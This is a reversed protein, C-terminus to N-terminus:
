DLAPAPILKGQEVLVCAMGANKAAQAGILTDEFVVCQEPKLGLQEAAMLFTDPNPKHAKVDDATVVADFLPAIDHHSLLKEANIRNSGTGVAMKKQGQFDRALSVTCEILDGREIRKAYQQMKFETITKPDLELDYKKNIQAVINISPMGGMSALWQGDCPFDFEKATEQWSQVHSPMTDILTGDMDFIFGQYHSVDISM